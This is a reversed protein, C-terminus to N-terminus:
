LQPAQFVGPGQPGGRLFGGGPGPRASRSSRQGKNILNMNFSGCLGRDATLLILGVKDVQEPQALLPHIDPDVGQSLSSWFRPSSKPMPGSAETKEQVGRLKAAAVMNMAKTIQRTKKVGAIKNQIDRLAAM